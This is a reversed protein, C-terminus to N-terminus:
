PCGNKSQKFRRLKELLIAMKDPTLSNIVDDVSQVEKKKGITRKCVVTRVGFEKLFIERDLDNHARVDVSQDHKLRTVIEIAKDLRIKRRNIRERLLERRAKMEGLNM